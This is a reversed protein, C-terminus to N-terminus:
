AGRTADQLFLSGLVPTMKESSRLSPQCDYAIFASTSKTATREPQVWSIHVLGIGRRSRASHGSMTTALALRVPSTKCMASQQTM